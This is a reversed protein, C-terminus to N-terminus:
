LDLFDDMAELVAMEGDEEDAVAEVLHETQGVADTHQASAHLDADPPRALGARVLDHRHDRSHCLGCTLRSAFSLRSGRERPQHPVLPLPRGERRTATSWASSRRSRASSGGKEQKM